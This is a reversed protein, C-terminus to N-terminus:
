HNIPETIKPQFRHVEREDSLSPLLQLLQHFTLRGFNPELPTKFSKAEVNQEKVYNFRQQISKHNSNYRLPKISIPRFGNFCMM